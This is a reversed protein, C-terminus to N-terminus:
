RRGALGSIQELEARGGAPGDGADPGARHLQEDGLVAAVDQDGPRLGVLHEVAQALVSPPAVGQRESEGGREVDVLCVVDEALADPVASRAPRFRFVGLRCPPATEPNKAKLPSAPLLPLDVALSSSKPSM